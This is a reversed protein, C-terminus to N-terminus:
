DNGKKKKGEEEMKKLRTYYDPIENIHALAIKATMEPDDDTVNTDPSVTGHELEVNIGMFFENADVKDWDVKLKNGIKRAEEESFSKEENLFSELKM